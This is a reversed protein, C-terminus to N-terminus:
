KQSVEGIVHDLIDIAQDMQAQTITLSPCLTVINGMTLKFSLGQKMAGYMVKEAQATARTKVQRDTVLEIGILLGKGRVDGIIAYKEQLKRLRSLAHDGIRRANEMLHHQEIFEM